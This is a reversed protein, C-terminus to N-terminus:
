NPIIFSVTAGDSATKTQVYTEGNTTGHQHEEKSSLFRDSTNNKTIFFIKPSNQM